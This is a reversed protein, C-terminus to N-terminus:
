KRIVKILAKQDKRNSIELLYMGAAENIQIEVKNSGRVYKKDLVQGISNRLVLQVDDYEKEFEVILNGATPNPYVSVGTEFSNEILGLGANTNLKHIFVDYGLTPGTLNFVSTSPDFDTIGNFYGTTLVSGAADVTLARPFIQAATTFTGAWKFNGATDLQSIFADGSLMFSSPGPDFDSTDAKCSGTTYVHGMHDTDIGWGSRGGLEKAWLLNGLPDFRHLVVTDTLQHLGCSYVNNWEDVAIASGQGRGLAQAWAFNGQADLKSIYVETQLPDSATLNFINPGPDFDIPSGLGIAGTSYVNSNKDVAIAYGVGGTQGGFQKAWVFDGQADLKCVFIDTYLHVTMNFVTSSDPDFDATGDFYGTLYQNGAPDVAIAYAHTPTPAAVSPQAGIQKAWIFNGDKDLKQIFIDRDWGQSILTYDTPGPDFDVTGVFSNTTYLNGMSDIGISGKEDISASDGYQKAWVLDGDPNLKCIFADKEGVSTMNFVNPGPDFDVTGRFLGVTYINNHQDTVISTAEDWGTSGIQKAWQLSQGFSNTSLVIFLLIHLAILPFSKSSM